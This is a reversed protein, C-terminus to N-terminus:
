FPLEFTQPLFPHSIQCGPISDEFADSESALALIAATIASNNSPASTNVEWFRQTFTLSSPNSHDILQSFNNLIAFPSRSNFSLRDPNVQSIFYAM